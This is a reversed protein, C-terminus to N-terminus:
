KIIKIVGTFANRYIQPPHILKLDYGKSQLMSIIDHILESNGEEKWFDDHPNKEIIEIITQIDCKEM